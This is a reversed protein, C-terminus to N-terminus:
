MEEGSPSPRHILPQKPTTSPEYEAGYPLTSSEVGRALVGACHQYLLALAACFRKTATWFVPCWSEHWLPHVTYNLHARSYVLFRKPNPPASTKSLACQHAAPWL